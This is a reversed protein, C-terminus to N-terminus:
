RAGGLVLRVEPTDWFFFIEGDCALDLNDRLVQRQDKTLNAPIKARPVILSSRLRAESKFERVTFLTRQRPM